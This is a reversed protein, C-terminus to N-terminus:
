LSGLVMTTIHPPGRIVTGMFEMVSRMCSRPGAKELKRPRITTVTRRLYFLVLIQPIAVGQSSIANGLAYACPGDARSNSRGRKGELRVGKSPVRDGLM